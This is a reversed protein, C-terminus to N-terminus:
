LCRVAQEEPVKDKGLPATGYGLLPVHIGTSGLPRQPSLVTPMCVGGRSIPTTKWQRGSTFIHNGLPPSEFGAARLARGAQLRLDAPRFSNSRAVCTSPHDTLARPRTM